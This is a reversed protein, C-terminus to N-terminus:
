SSSTCSVGGYRVRVTLRYTDAPAANEEWPRVYELRITTVGLGNGRFLWTEIGGAGVADSGSETYESGILTVIKDDLPEALRWAYGTSGNSPLDVGFRQWQRVEVNTVTRDYYIVDASRITTGCAVVLLAVMLWGIRRMKM